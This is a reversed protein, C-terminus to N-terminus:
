HHLVSSTIIVIHRYVIVITVRASSTSHVKDSSDVITSYSFVKYVVYARFLDSLRKSQFAQKTDSFDPQNALTRTTHGVFPVLPHVTTVNGHRLVLPQLRRTALMM